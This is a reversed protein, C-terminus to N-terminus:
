IQISKGTKASEEAAYCIEMIHSAYEINVPSNKNQNLCEVFHDIEGQFPHHTVDGSDPMITPITAFHSQGPMKDTFLQNDRITGKSGFLRIPFMYPAKTEISSAVKGIVGNKFKCLTTLTPEYEYAQFVEAKSRVAYSHVEEIESGVFWVLADIAHCGASLLSNGGAEKTKNWEFQKYWPGIGHYYDVEGYYIEGLSDDDILSRLISFLPNWRLVFSVVSKTKNKKVCEVLKALDNSNMALPKEMVLQAGGEAAACGHEVHLQPPSTISVFDPKGKEMMEAVTEFCEAQIGWEEAKQQAKEKSSSVLAAVETHPNNNYAAVHEGAVWGCGVIGVRYSAM